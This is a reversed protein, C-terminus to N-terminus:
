RAMLPEIRYSNGEETIRVGAGKAVPDIVKGTLGLVAAEIMPSHSVVLAKGDEPLSQFVSGLVEGLLSAEREVLEPDAARFADLDKGAARKSAEFWRDEVASRFGTNVIVGGPVSRGMGALFCAATQTARQAGSTIVVDYDANLRTGIAIAERVGDPTLM